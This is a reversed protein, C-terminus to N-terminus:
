NGSAVQRLRGHEWSYKTHGQSFHACEIHVIACRCLWIAGIFLLLFLILRPSPPVHLVIPHRCYIGVVRGDRGVAATSHCSREPENSCVRFGHCSNICWCYTLCWLAFTPGGISDTVSHQQQWIACKKCFNEYVNGAWLVCVCIYEFSHSIKVSCSKAVQLMSCAVTNSSFRVALRTNVTFAYLRIALLYITVDSTLNADVIQMFLQLHGSWKQLLLWRPSYNAASRRVIASRMAWIRVTGSYWNMVLPVANDIQRM